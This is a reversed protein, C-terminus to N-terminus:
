QEDKHYIDLFVILNKEKDYFYSLRYPSIYVERTGERGFMMPKGVKPNRIDKELQKDLRSKLPNRLKIYKKKFVNEFKTKVM